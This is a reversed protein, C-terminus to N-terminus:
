APRPPPGGRLSGTRLYRVVYNRANRLRWKLMTARAVASSGGAAGRIRRNEERVAAAQTETQQAGHLRFGCVPAPHRVFKAGSQLARLFFDADGSLRFGTDFGGLRDYLARSFITGPQPLGQLPIRFLTLLESPAASRLAYLFRGDEDVYDPDGYALDASEAEALAILERFATPYVVDDSNLYTVWPTAADELGANVARYMNGREAFRTEIGWRNCIELTADTSGSDVAIVRVDVGRQARLSAITWDLTAAGNLV